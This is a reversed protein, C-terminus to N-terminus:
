AWIKCVRVFNKHARCFWLNSERECYQTSSQTPSIWPFILVDGLHQKSLMKSWCPVFECYINRTNSLEVSIHLTKCQNVDIHVYDTVIYKYINRDYNQNQRCTFSLVTQSSFICYFDIRQMSWIFHIINQMSICWQSCLKPDKHKMSM